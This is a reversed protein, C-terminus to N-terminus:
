YTVNFQKYGDADSTRILLEIVREAVNDDNKRFEIKYSNKLVQTVPLSALNLLNQNPQVFLASGGTCESM